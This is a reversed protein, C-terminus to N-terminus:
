AQNEILYKMWAIRPPASYIPWYYLSKENERCYHEGIKPRNHRIFVKLKLRERLTIKRYSHLTIICVCIGRYTKLIRNNEFEDLVIKLLEKTTRM